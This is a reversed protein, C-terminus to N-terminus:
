AVGFDSFLDRDVDVIGAEQVPQGRAGGHPPQRAAAGRQVADLNEPGAQVGRRAIHIQVCPTPGGELQIRTDGQASGAHGQEAPRVVRHGVRQHAGDELHGLPIGEESFLDDLAQDIRATEHALASAVPEFAVQLANVIM